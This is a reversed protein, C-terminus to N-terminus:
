PLIALKTQATKLITWLTLPLLPYQAASSCKVRGDTVSLGALWHQYSYICSHTPQWVLWFVHAGLQPLSGAEFSSPLFTISASMQGRHACTHGGVYVCVCFINQSNLSHPLPPSLSEGVLSEHWSWHWSFDRCWEGLWASMLVGM